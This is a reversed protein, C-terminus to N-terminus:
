LDRGRREGHDRPQGRFEEPKLDDVSSLVVQARVDQHYSFAICRETEFQGRGEYNARRM